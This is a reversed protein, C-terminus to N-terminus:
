LSLATVIHKWGTLSSIIETSLSNLINAVKNKEAISPKIAASIRKNSTVLTGLGVEIRGLEWLLEQQKKYPLHGYNGLWGVLAQLKIGLDQGPV